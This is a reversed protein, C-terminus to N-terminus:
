AKVGKGQGNPIATASRHKLRSGDIFTEHMLVVAEDVSSAPIVFSLSERTNFSRIIPIQANLLKFADFFATPRSGLGFGVLSVEGLQGSVTIRAGYKNQL